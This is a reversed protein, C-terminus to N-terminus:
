TWRYPRTSPQLRADFELVGHANSIRRSRIQRDAQELGLVGATPREGSQEDSYGICLVRGFDGNLATKLFDETKSNTDQTQPFSNAEVPLTEIDITITRNKIM